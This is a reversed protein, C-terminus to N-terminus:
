SVLFNSYIHHIRTSLLLCGYKINYFIKFNIGDGSKQQYQQTSRQTQKQQQQDTLRGGKILKDLLLGIRKKLKEINELSTPIQNAATSIAPEPNISKSFYVKLMSTINSEVIEEWGGSADCSHVNPTFSSQFIKMEEDSLNLAIRILLIILHTAASLSSSAQRLKLDNADIQETISIIQKYTAELLFDLKKLSTASKDKFIILLRKQVARYQLATSELLLDLKVKERRCQFHQDMIHFYEVLPLQKQLDISLRVDPSKKNLRKVFDKLVLWMEPLSDSQLRFRNSTKSSLFTVVARDSQGVCKFAVALSGDEGDVVFGSYLSNLDFSAVNSDMTLKISSTKEPEVREMMIPLEIESSRELVKIGGVVSYELTHAHTRAHTQKSTYLLGLYLRMMCAHRITVKLNRVSLMRVLDDRLQVLCSVEVPQTLEGVSEVKSEGQKRKILEQLKKLEAQAENFGAERSSNSQFVPRSWVSPETGLFLAALRGSDDMTVICGKGDTSIRAVQVPVNALNAAWQLTTNKYVLLTKNHTTILINVTLEEVNPSYVFFSSPDFEFKKMLFIVGSSTFAYLNRECGLVYINQKNSTHHTVVQIDRANDNTIFTWFANIKKGSSSIGDQAKSVNDSSTAITQLEYCEVMRASSVTVFCDTSGVYVIPGPILSNPLCRSLAYVEQEYISIVGDLSQVCLFDKGQVKGFPGHCMNFANRRLKHEYVCTMNCELLTSSNSGLNSEFLYVSLKKIQLVAISLTPSSVVFRGVVVHIIPEKVAVECLLEDAKKHIEYKLNPQYIRLVGGFSGVVIKNGRGSHDLDALCMCGVDFVEEANNGVDASWIEKTKFLSM